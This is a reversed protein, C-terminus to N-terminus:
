LIQDGKVLDEAPSLFETDYKIMGMLSNLSIPRPTSYYGNADEQCYGNLINIRAIGKARENEFRDESRKNYIFDQRNSTVLCCNLITAQAMIFCDNTPVYKNIDAVFVSKMPASFSQGKYTYEHCYLNALDRAKQNKDQYNVLNINPFYCYEKMFSCLSESHKSEHFVADVILPRLEDNKIANLLKNFYNFDKKLSHDKISEIDIHGNEKKLLDLYTLTRLIDSDIAIYVKNEM